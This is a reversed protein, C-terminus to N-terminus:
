VILSVGFAKACTYFVAGKWSPQDLEQKATTQQAVSMQSIYKTSFSDWLKQVQSIMTTCGFTVGLSEFTVTPQLQLAKRVISVTNEYARKTCGALQAALSNDWDTRSLSESAMHIALVTKCNPGANFVKPPVNSELQRQFKEARQQLKNDDKLHLRDLCHILPNESSM